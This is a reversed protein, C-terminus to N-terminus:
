QAQQRKRYDELEKNYVEEVFKHEEYKVKIADESPLSSYISKAVEKVLQPSVVIQVECEYVGSADQTFKPAQTNRITVVKDDIIGVARETRKTMTENKKGNTIDQGFETDVASISRYLRTAANLQASRLADRYAKSKDYSKGFGFDIMGDAFAEPAVPTSEFSKVQTNQQTPQSPTYTTQKSSSCATFLLTAAVAATMMITRM